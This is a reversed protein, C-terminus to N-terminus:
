ASKKKGGTVEGGYGAKKQARKKLCRRLENGGWFVWRWGSFGESERSCVDDQCMLRHGVFDGADIGGRAPGRSYWTEKTGSDLIVDVGGVGQDDGGTSSWPSDSIMDSRELGWPWESRGDV